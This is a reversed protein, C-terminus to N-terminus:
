HRRGLLGGVVGLTGGLVGNVVGGGTGVAGNVVGNVGAVVGGTVNGVAAVTNGVVGGGPAAGGGPASAAGGGGGNGGGGGGNGGSGATSSGGGNVAAVTSTSSKAGGSWVTDEISTDRSASRVQVPAAAGHALGHTAKHVNLHVEGLAGSIRIVNHQKVFGDSKAEAHANALKGSDPSTHQLAHIVKGDGANRPVLLGGKPVQIREISSARPKGQEIPNFTGSGSLSLGRKGHELSTAAQGPL